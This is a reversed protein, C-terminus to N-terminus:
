GNKNELSALGMPTIGWVTESNGRSNKRRLKTKQLAGANFLETIRPKITFVDHSLAECVEHGTLGQLDHNSSADSVAILIKQHLGREKNLYTMIKKYALQETDSANNRLSKSIELNLQM